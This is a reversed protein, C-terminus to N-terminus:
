RPGSTCSRARPGIGRRASRVSTSSPGPSVILRPATGAPRTPARLPTDGPSGPASDPVGPARVLVPVKISAVDTVLAGPALHPGLRGLLDLVAEPPAALVVLDAGAVAREPSTAIDDVAGAKLARVTDGRDPAYGIVRPVGALRAQWALSGGIAGLGLVALHSPQM